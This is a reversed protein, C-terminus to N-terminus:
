RYSSRFRGNHHDGYQRHFERHAERQQRHYERHAERDDFRDFGRDQFLRPDFFVGQGYQYGLRKQLGPPLQGTRLLHKQLGPPLQGGRKALGPPLGQFGGLFAGPGFSGLFADNGCHGRRGFGKAKHDAMLPTVALAVVVLALLGVRKM